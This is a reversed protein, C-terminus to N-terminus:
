VISVFIHNSKEASDIDSTKIYFKVQTGRHHKDKDLLPALSVATLQQASRIDMVFNDLGDILRVGHLGGPAKEIMTKLTLSHLHSDVGGVSMLAQASTSDAVGTPLLFNMELVLYKSSINTTSGDFWYRMTFGTTCHHLHAGMGAKIKYHKFVPNTTAPSIPRFLVQLLDQTHSLIVTEVKASAEVAKDTKTGHAKVSKGAKSRLAFDSLDAFASLNISDAFYTLFSPTIGDDAPPLFNNKRPKYEFGLMAGQYYPSFRLTMLQTDVCFLEQQDNNYNEVMFRVWGDNPDVEPKPVFDIDVQSKLVANYFEKHSAVKNINGSNNKYVTMADNCQKIARQHRTANYSFLDNKHRGIILSINDCQQKLRNLVSKNINITM